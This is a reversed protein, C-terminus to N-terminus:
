EPDFHCWIWHEDDIRKKFPPSESCNPAARPCRNRFRCGTTLDIRTGIEAAKGMKRYSAWRNKGPTSAFLLRTYPHSPNDLIKKARGYETFKGMYMVALFHAMLPVTKLDHSIYLLSVNKQKQINRLLLL